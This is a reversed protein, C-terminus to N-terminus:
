SMRMARHIRAALDMTDYPKVIYDFAGHRMADIVTEIADLWSVIIVPIRRSLDQVRRLLEIGSMGPLRVDTIILDIPEQQLRELAGEATANIVLTVQEDEHRPLQHEVTRLFTDVDGADDEVLLIKFIKNKTGSM